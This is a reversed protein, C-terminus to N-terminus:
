EVPISTGYPLTISQANNNNPYYVKPHLDIKVANYECQIPNALSDIIDEGMYITNNHELFVVNRDEKYFSYLGHYITLSDISGM